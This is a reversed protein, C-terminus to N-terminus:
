SEEGINEGFKLKEFNENVFSKMNMNSVSVYIEEVITVNPIELSVYERTSSLMSTMGEKEKKKEGGM